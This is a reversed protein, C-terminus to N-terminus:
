ANRGRYDGKPCKGLDHIGKRRGRRAAAFRTRLQVGGRIWVPIVRLYGPEGQQGIWIQWHRTALRRWGTLLTQTAWTLNYAANEVAESYFAGRQDTDSRPAPYHDVAVAPDYILKWGRRKVALSFCMDNHVQAGQGRLHAEFCLGDIAARRFSMNAGKLIDVERAPGTGVHHNGVIRGFWQVRGVMRKQDDVVAGDPTHVWDRGGVGGIRSDADFHAVIRALWDSHPAADDDTIAVIEGKVRLLGANLAHVQGPESVKVIELPLCGVFAQVVLHTTKDVDRVVVVVQAPALHQGCLAELCRGLDDPRRYSPVLVSITLM